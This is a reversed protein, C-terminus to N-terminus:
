KSHNDLIGRMSLSIQGRDDVNIVWVSISDGLSLYEYLQGLPQDAVEPLQLTGYCGYPLSICAFGAKLRFVHGQYIRGPIIMDDSNERTHHSPRDEQASGPLSTKQSRTDLNETTSTQRSLASCLSNHELTLQTYSANALWYHEDLELQYSSNELILNFSRNSREVKLRNLLNGLLQRRALLDQRPSRFTLKRM